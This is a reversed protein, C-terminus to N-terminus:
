AITLLDAVTQTPAVIALHSVSLGNMYWVTLNGSADRFQLDAHGDGDYDGVAALQDYGGAPSFGVVAQSTRTPGDMLWILVDTQGAHSVDPATWVIDSRGNGDFDGIGRISWGAPAAASVTQIVDLAMTQSGDPAIANNFKWLSLTGTGDYWLIDAMGDGNFDGVGAFGSTTATAAVDVVVPQRLGAMLWLQLNGSGDNGRLVVDSFGDGNFDAVGLVQRLVAWSGVPNNAAIQDALDVSHDASVPNSLLVEYQFRADVAQHVLLDARGDGDFDGIGDLGFAGYTLSAPKLFGTNFSLLPTNAQAATQTPEVLVLAGNSGVLLIDAHGEGTFDGRIAPAAHPATLTILVTESNATDGVPNAIHALIEHAGDDLFTVRAEWHGSSDLAARGLVASDYKDYLTIDSQLVAKLRENGLDTPTAVPMTVHGSIVLSRSSTSHAVTDLFIDPQYPEVVDVFTTGLYLFRPDAVTLDLETHNTSDLFRGIEGFVDAATVDRTTTHNLQRDFTVVAHAGQNMGMLGFRIDTFRPSVGAANGTSFDFAVPDEALPLGREDLVNLGPFVLTESTKWWGAKRTAPEYDFIVSPSNHVAGFFSGAESSIERIYVTHPGPVMPVYESWRNFQESTPIPLGTARGDVMLQVFINADAVGQVLVPRYPSYNLNTHSPTGSDVFYEYVRAASNNIQFEGRYFKGDGWVGNSDQPIVAMGSGIDFDITISSVLSRPSYPTNEDVSFNTIHHGAIDVSTEPHTYLKGSVHVKQAKFDLVEQDVIFVPGAAPNDNPFYFNGSGTASSQNGALDTVGALFTHSGTGGIHGRVSWFGSGDAITSGVLIYDQGVLEFLQVSSGADVAGPTLAGRVLFNTAAGSEQLVTLGRIQPAVTDLIITETAGWTNDIADVMTATLTYARDAGFAHLLSWSGDAQVIATRQSGTATDGIMVHRGVDEPRATGTLLQDRQNTAGSASTFRLVTALPDLQYQLAIGPIYQTGIVDVPVVFHARYGEHYPDGALTINARWHGTADVTTSGIIEVGDLLQVTTGAKGYGAVVHAAKNTLGGASTIGVQSTEYDMVVATSTGVNGALDTDKAVLSHLGTGVLTIAKAWHGTADVKVSALATAGDFLQVTTGAEGTGNLTLSPSLTLNSATSIAVVPALTDLTFTTVISPSVNGAADMDRVTIVHAGDGPLLNPSTSWRGNTGVIASAIVIGGDLLIINTGREGTGSFTQQLQNTVKGVTTMTMTPAVTDLTIALAASSGVNGAADTTSAVLSHLGDGALQATARWHGTADLVGTGVVANGARTDRLTVIAGVTGNGVTGALLPSTVSTAAGTSSFAVTPATTIM